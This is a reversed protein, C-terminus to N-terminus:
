APDPAAAEGAPPDRRRRFKILFGLSVLGLAISIIQSTSLGGFWLGRVEDGRFAEIISRNIAYLLSMWLAVQGAYRRRALIRLGILALIAANLSMWIQTAWLVQGENAETFLSGEPLEAPVRVVIPFPLGAQAEPVIRGYDDGVMLCGVRGVALGIFTCITGLDTAHPLPLDYKRCCMWGGLLGGLAGGYMVLGGQWYFLVSLPDGLYSQGTDSGRLIEVLVYLARAGLLIGILMWIPLASYGRKRQEDTQGPQGYRDGLRALVHTGLLFGVVVMLGFSRLPVGLVPIEFLIPYM